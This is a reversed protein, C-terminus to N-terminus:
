INLIILIIFFVLFDSFTIFCHFENESSLVKRYLIILITVLFDNYRRFMM